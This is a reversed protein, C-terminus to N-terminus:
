LEQMVLENAMKMSPHKENVRYNLSKMKSAKKHTEPFVSWLTITCNRVSLSDNHGVLFVSFMCGELMFLIEMLLMLIESVNEVKELHFIESSNSDM